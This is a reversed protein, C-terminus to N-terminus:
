ANKMVFEVNRLPTVVKLVDARRYLMGFKM